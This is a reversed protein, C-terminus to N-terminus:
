NIATFYGSKEPLSGHTFLIVMGLLSILGNEIAATAINTLLQSIALNRQYVVM